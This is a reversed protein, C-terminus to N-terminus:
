GRQALLATLAPRAERAALTAFRALAASEELVPAIVTAPDAADELAEALLAAEFRAPWGGPRHRGADCM